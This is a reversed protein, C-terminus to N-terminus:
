QELYGKEKLKNEILDLIAESDATVTHRHKGNTLHNLPESKGSSLAEILNDVDRRSSIDLVTDLRGYVQHEIFVDQVKGGLDVIANLEDRIQDDKHLVHFVRTKSAAHNPVYGNNTSFIDHGRARLLAIDQVILQRSVNYKKALESGSIPEGSSNIDKIINERRKEGTM